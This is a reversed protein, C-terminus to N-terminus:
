IKMEITAETRVREILAATAEQQKQSELQTRAEAAVEEFPPLDPTSSAVTDYFAQVDEDSVTVALWEPSSKIFQDVLLQNKLDDRMAADTLGAGSLATALQDAGGFQTELKGVEETIAEETVTFGAETAKQIMLVTNVMVITAQKEVEARVAADTAPDFGQQIAVAAAQDYSQQFEEVKVKQGNVVAVVAPYEIGGILAGANQQTTMYWYAGAAMATLLVFIIAGIVINRKSSVLAATGATTVLTDNSMEIVTDLSDATAVNTAKTENTEPNSNEPQM